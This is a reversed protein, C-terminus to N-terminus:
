PQVQTVKTSWPLSWSEDGNLPMPSVVVYCTVTGTAPDYAFKDFMANIRATAGADHFPGAGIRNRQDTIETAAIGENVLIARAAKTFALNNQGGSNGAQRGDSTSIYFKQKILTGSGPGSAAVVALPM